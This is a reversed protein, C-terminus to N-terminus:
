VPDDRRAQPVTPEPDPVHVMTRFKLIAFPRNDFGRRTQRFLVPGPTDFRIAAAIAVMLPLLLLLLVTGLALDTARKVTVRV